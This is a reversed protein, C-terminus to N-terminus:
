NASYGLGPFFQGDGYDDMDDDHTHGCNDGDEHQYVDNARSWDLGAQACSEEDRYMLSIAGLGKDLGGVVALLDLLHHAAEAQPLILDTDDATMLAASLEAMFMEITYVGSFRQQAVAQLVDESALNLAGARAGKEQMSGTVERVTRYLADAEIASIIQATMQLTYAAKALQASGAGGMDQVSSALAELIPLAEKLSPEEGGVFCALHEGNFSDQLGPRLFVLPAEVFTKDNVVCVANLERSFMPTSASLDILLTGPNTHQALGEEGFYADELSEQSFYYTLVVDASLVDQTHEYGLECLCSEVYEGVCTEGKYLFSNSM